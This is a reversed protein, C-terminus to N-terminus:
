AVIESIFQVRSVPILVRVLEGGPSVLDGAVYRSYSMQEALESMESVELEVVIPQNTGILCFNFQM